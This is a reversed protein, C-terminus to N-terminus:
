PKDRKDIIPYGLPPEFHRSEPETTTIETVTFRQEGVTPTQLVSRLNLRLEPSYSFDRIYTMPKDNGFAGADILITDRYAHSSIGAVVEQGLDERTRSGRGDPLRGSDTKIPPDPTSNVKKWDHLECARERVACELFTEAVPDYIQIYSMRSPINTGKPALLWREEYVRGRSDRRIARRNAVTFTGGQMLPRTWETALVLSFPAGPVPPVHISELVQNGKGDLGIGGDQPTQASATFGTLGTILLLFALMLANIAAISGEAFLAAIAADAPPDGVQRMPELLADTSAEATQFPGAM